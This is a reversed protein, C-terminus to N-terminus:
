AAAGQVVVRHSKCIVQNAIAGTGDAAVQVELSNSSAWTIGTLDTAQIFNMGSVSGDGNYVTLILRATTAATRYFEARVTFLGADISNIDIETFSDGLQIFIYGNATASGAYAFSYEGLLRMGNTTLTGAPITPNSADDGTGDTASNGVNISGSALVTDGGSGGGSPAAFINWDNHSWSGGSGTPDLCGLIHLKARQVSPDTITINGPSAENIVVNQYLCDGLSGVLFLKTDFNQGGIIEIRSCNKFTIGSTGNTGSAATDFNYITAGNTLGDFFLADGVTHNAQGGTVKVRGDNNGTGFYIGVAGYDMIANDINTNGAYVKIHTSNRHGRYNTFQCYEHRDDILLGVTCFDARIGRYIARVGFNGSGIIGAEAGTCHLGYNNFSRFCTDQMTWNVAAVTGSYANFGSATGGGTSLLDFGGFFWNGVDNAQFQYGSTIPCNIYVKGHPIWTQGELIQITSTTVTYTGARVLFMDGAQAAAVAAQITSFPRDLYGRVGTGAIATSDVVLTAGAFVQRSTFEQGM